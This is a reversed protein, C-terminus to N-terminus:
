NQNQMNKELKIIEQISTKDYYNNTFFGLLITVLFTIITISILFPFFFYKFFLSEMKM